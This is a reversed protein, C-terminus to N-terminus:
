CPHCSHPSNICNHIYSNWIIFNQERNHVKKVLWDSTSKPIARTNQCSRNVQSVSSPGKPSVFTHGSKFIHSQHQTLILVKWRHCDKLETLISSNMGTFQDCPRIKCPSRAGLRVRARSRVMHRIKLSNGRKPSCWVKQRWRVNCMMTSFSWQQKNFMASRLHELLLGTNVAEHWKLATFEMIHIYNHNM